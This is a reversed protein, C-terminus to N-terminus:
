SDRLSKLIYQILQKTTPKDGYFDSFLECFIDLNKHKDNTSSVCKDITSHITKANKIHTSIAVKEMINDLKLYPEKYAILIASKLLITGKSYM